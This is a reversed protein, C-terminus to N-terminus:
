LIPYGVPVRLTSTHYPVSELVRYLLAVVSVGDFVVVMVVVMSIGTTFRDIKTTTFRDLNLIQMVVWM